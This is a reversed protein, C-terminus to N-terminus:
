RKLIGVSQNRPYVPGSKYSISIKYMSKWVQSLVWWCCVTKKCNCYWFFHINKTFTVKMISWFFGQPGNEKKSNWADIWYRLFSLDEWFPSVYNRFEKWNTFLIFLFCILLHGKKQYEYNYLVLTALSRDWVFYMKNHLKKKQPSLNSSKQSM